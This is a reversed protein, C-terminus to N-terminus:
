PKIQEATLLLDVYGVVKNSVNLEYLRISQGPAVGTIDDGSTYPSTNYHNGGVVPRSPTFFLGTDVALTNAGDPVYTIATSGSVTGPSVTYGTIAPADVAMMDATVQLDAFKVVKGDADAEYLGIHQGATPFLDMMPYLSMADGPTPTGAAPVAFADQQLKYLLQNGQAPTYQVTVTGPEMGPLVQVGTMSGAPQDGAHKKLTLAIPASDAAGAEAVAGAKIVVTITVDHQVPLAAAGMLSITIRDAAAKAVMPAIFDPLGTVSVQSLSVDDRFTGAALTIAFTSDAPDLTMNNSTLQATPDTAMAMVPAPADPIPTQNAVPHNAVSAAPNGTLNRIAQTMYSITVTDGYAVAAELTLTVAPGNVAAHSAYVDADNVRTVFSYPSLFVTDDLTEHYTLVLSNGHVVASVLRPPTFSVTTEMNWIVPGGIGGAPLRGVDVSSPMATVTFGAAEAKSLFAPLANWRHIPVAAKPNVDRIFQLVEDYQIDATEDDLGRGGTYDGIPILLLDVGSQGQIAAKVEESLTGYGEIIPGMGDGMHLIRKGDTELIFGANPEDGFGLETWFHPLPVTRIAVGSYVAETVQRFQGPMGEEVGYLIHGGAKATPAADTYNHDDHNHTVAILKVESENPVTYKPMGFALPRWPDILIAEHGKKLLFSSHGLYELEAPGEGPQPATGLAMDALHQIYLKGYEFDYVAGAVTATSQSATLSGKVASVTYTGAPVDVYYHVYDAGRETDKVMAKGIGTAAEPVGYVVSYDVSRDANYVRVTVADKGHGNLLVDGFLHYGSPQPDAPAAVTVTFVVNVGAQRSDKVVATVQTSGPAVPILKLSGETTIELRIIGAATYTAGTVTLADGDSDTALDAATWTIGGGMTLTQPAVQKAAPAANVPEGGGTSPPTTGPPASVPPPQQGGLTGSMDTIKDPQKELEVKAQGTEEVNLEAIPSSGKLTIGAEKVTVKDIKSTTNLTISADKKAITLERIKGSGTLVTGSELVSLKPVAVDVRVSVGAKTIALEGISGEGELQVSGAVNLKSVKAAADQVVFIVGDSKLEAQGITTAGAAEVKVDQKEVSLSALAAEEFVVTNEDGGRVYAAGGVQIGSAKFDHGVSSDVTLSGEVSLSRLTTYDGRVTVDGGIRGQRGDYVVNASFEPRGAQAAAGAAALTLGTVSTLEGSRSLRYEVEANKLATANDPHLLTKQLATAVPIVAGGAITVTEGNGALSEIMVGRFGARNVEAAAAYGAQHEVMEYALRALAQRQAQEGPGFLLTGGPGDTGQIFGIQQALAVHAQAWGAVEDGDAFDPKLEMEKAHEELGMARVFFVALEERTVDQEPAFLSPAVGGTLGSDALAGVYGAYWSGPPIDEFRLAAEPKEKLGLALALVKALEARSMPQEPRFSGDPYGSLIEKEILTRIEKNAYSQSLDSLGDAPSAAQAAQLPVLVLVLALLLVSMNHLLIHVKM